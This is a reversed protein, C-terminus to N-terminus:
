MALRPLLVIETMLEVSFEMTSVMVIGKMGKVNARLGEFWKKYTIEFAAM